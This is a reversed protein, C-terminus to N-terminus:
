ASTMGGLDSRARVQYRGRAPEQVRGGLAEGCGQQLRWSRQGRLAGWNVSGAEELSEMMTQQMLEQVLMNAPKTMKEMTPKMAWTVLRDM